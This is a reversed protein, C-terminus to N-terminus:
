ITFVGRPLFPRWANPLLEASLSGSQVFHSVIYALHPPSARASKPRSGRLLSLKLPITKWFVCFSSVFNRPRAVKPQWLEAITVFASFKRGFPGGAPHRAEMKVTLIVETKGRSQVSRVLFPSVWIKPWTRQGIDDLLVSCHQHQGSGYIHSQHPTTLSINFFLLSFQFSFTHLVASLAPIVWDCARSV